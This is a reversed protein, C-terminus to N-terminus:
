TLVGRYYAGNRINSLFIVVYGERLGPFELSNFIREVNAEVKRCTRPADEVNPAFEFEAVPDFELLALRDGVKFNRDDFRVEFTKEGSWVMEFFPQVTKLEHRMEVM